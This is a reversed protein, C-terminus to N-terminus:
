KEDNSAKTFAAGISRLLDRLWQDSAIGTIFMALGINSVRSAAYFLIFTIALDFVQAGDGRLLRLIILVFVVVDALGNILSWMFLSLFGRRDLMGRINYAGVLEVIGSAISLVAWAILVLNISM